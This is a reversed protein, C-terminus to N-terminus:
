FVITMSGVIVSLPERSANLVVITNLRIHGCAITLGPVPGFRVESVGKVPIQYYAVTMAGVVLLKCESLLRGVDYEIGASVPLVLGRYSNLLADGEFFLRSDQSRGLWRWQPRISYRVGLGWNNGNYDINRDIHYSLGWISIGWQPGSGGHGEEDAGQAYTACPLVFLLALGLVIRDSV